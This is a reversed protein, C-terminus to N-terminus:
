LKIGLLLQFIPLKPLNPMGKNISPVTGYCRLILLDLKVFIGPKNFIYHILNVIFVHNKKFIKDFVPFYKSFQM